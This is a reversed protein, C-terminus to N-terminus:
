LKKEKRLKLYHFTIYALLFTTIWEFPTLVSTRDIFYYAAAIDAAIILLVPLLRVLKAADESLRFKKSWISDYFLFAPFAFSINLIHILLSMLKRTVSIETSSCDNTCNSCVICVAYTNM